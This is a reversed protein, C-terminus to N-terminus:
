GLRWIYGIIIIEKFPLAWALFLYYKTESLAFASPRRNIHRKLCIVGESTDNM